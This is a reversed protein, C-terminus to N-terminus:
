YSVIAGIVKTLFLAGHLHITGNYDPGGIGSPADSQYKLFSMQGDSISILGPRSQGNGSIQVAKDSHGIYLTKPTKRHSVIGRETQAMDNSFEKDALNSDLSHNHM